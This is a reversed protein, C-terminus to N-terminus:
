IGLGTLFADLDTFFRDRIADQEMLIEHRSDPYIRVTVNPLLQALRRQARPDVLREIGPLALLVPTTVRRVLRRRRAQGMARFSADLWGWTVGGVRLEPRDAFLRHYVAFREPHSTLPNGEFPRGPATWDKQGLAYSGGRGARVALRSLWRVAFQRPGSLLGVMPAALVAADALDPREALAQLMVPAAMSHGLLVLRRTAMAPRITRDLVAVLDDRFREYRDIHGKQSGPLLRSSLGQGRWELSWVAFGRAGLDAAAEAYKEIFESRGPLLVLDARPAPPVAWRALRLRAGDPTDHWLIEM